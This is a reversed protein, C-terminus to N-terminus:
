TQLYFPLQLRRPNNRKNSEELCLQETYGQKDQYEGQLGPQNRVRQSKFAHVVM